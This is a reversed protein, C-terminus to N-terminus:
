GLMILVLIQVRLNMYVLLKSQSIYGVAWVRATLLFLKKPWSGPCHSPVTGPLQISGCVRMILRSGPQCMPDGNM